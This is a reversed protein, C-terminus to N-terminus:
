IGSSSSAVFSIRGLGVKLAMISASYIFFLSCLELAHSHLGRSLWKIDCSSSTRIICTQHPKHVSIPDGTLYFLGVNNNNLLTSWFLIDDMTGSHNLRQPQHLCLAGAPSATYTISRVQWATTNPSLDAREGRIRSIVQIM